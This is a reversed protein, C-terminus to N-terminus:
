KFGQADERVEVCDTHQIKQIKQRDGVTKDQTKSGTASIARSALDSPTSRVVASTMPGSPYAKRSVSSRSALSLAPRRNEPTAMPAGLGPTPVSNAVGHLPPRVNISFDLRYRRTPALSNSLAGDRNAPQCARWVGAQGGYPVSLRQAHLSDRVRNGASHDPAPRSRNGGGGSAGGGSAM